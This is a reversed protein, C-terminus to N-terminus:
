DPPLAALTAADGVWLLEHRCDRLRAAADATAQMWDPPAGQADVVLSILPQPRSRDASVTRYAHELRALYGWREAREDASFPLTDVLLELLRLQRARSDNWRAKAVYRGAVISANDNRGHVVYGTLCRRLYHVEGALLMATHGLIADAFMRWEHLPLLAMVRALLPRGFVMGSTSAFPFEHHVASLTLHPGFRHQGIQDFWTAAIPAGDVGDLIQLDHCLFLQEPTAGLTDLHAAVAALRDPLCHDDADLLCIYDGQAVAVGAAFAATQGRNDQLVLRVGPTDCWAALRERSDDTSGDDVVVVERLEAPYQQGLVSDIARGVLAAHNYNAVVVSFRPLPASM